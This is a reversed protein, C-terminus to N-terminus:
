TMVEEITVRTPLQTLSEPDAVYSFGYGDEDWTITYGYDDRIEAARDALEDLAEAETDHHSPEVDPLYGNVYELVAFRYGSMIIDGEFTSTPTM